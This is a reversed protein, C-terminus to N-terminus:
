TSRRVLSPPVDKKVFLEAFEAMQSALVLVTFVLAALVFYPIVEVLLYREIRMRM